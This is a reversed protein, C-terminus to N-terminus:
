RKFTPPTTIPQNGVRITVGNTKTAPTQSFFYARLAKRIIQSRDQDAPLAELAKKIDDDVQKRLRFPIINSKM